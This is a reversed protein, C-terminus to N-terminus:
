RIRDNKGPRGGMDEWFKNWQEQTVPVEVPERNKRAEDHGCAPREEGVAWRKGCACVM